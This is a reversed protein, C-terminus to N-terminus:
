RAPALWAMIEAVLMDAVLRHGEVNYHIGDPLVKDVGLGEVLSRTDVLRV